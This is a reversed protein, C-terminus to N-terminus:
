EAFEVGRIEFRAGGDDSEALDITWGHAEVIREVIALGFGTGNESTSYGSDFVREREEAPVGPGDDEVYFGDDLDGVIVTVSGSGHEVADDPSARNRSGTSSHEVSDGRADRASARRAGHEVADGSQTRSGTSSHEVSNRVLNEIIRRLRSEDALVTRDTETRLTAGDTRVSAWGEEVIGALRVRLPDEVTEGQRALTLVDDILGEMRDAARRCAAFQEPDGTEEVLDLSGQLVNLPNRLDHSVISAFEELRENKRALRENTRRRELEYSVWQAMLDVLTVEWDSFPAERPEEDYFCFTGYVDGDVLVPAGLYCSIGWETHGAREALDADDTADEIVLTRETAVARECNTASLPVTDGAAIEGGPSRVHEFVYTRGDIRSLTAYGTGLVDRGIEMLEGVQEEFSRDVDSIVDYIERLVRERSEIEEAQCQRETVDRFFVSLGTESPYARVDFWTDLPGYHERFSVSAQTRMAEHYRDYFVTDVAEPVAKWLENGEVEGADVDGTMAASLVEAARDNAYTLRWETDVAFFADTMRDLVVRRERESARRDTIDRGIGCFGPGADTGEAIRVTRFEYPIREGDNTVVAAEVRTRGTEFTEAVAATVSRVDEGEFFDAPSMSALEEDDYGTVEVVARNWQHFRGREDFTFFLDDLTDLLSGALGDSITSISRESM